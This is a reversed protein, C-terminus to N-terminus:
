HEPGPPCRPTDLTRPAAKGLPPKPSDPARREMSWAHWEFLEHLEAVAAMLQRQNTEIWNAQAAPM